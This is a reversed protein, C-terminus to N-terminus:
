QNISWNSAEVTFDERINCTILGDCYLSYLRWVGGDENRGADHLKFKPRLEMQKFLQGIGISQYDLLKVVELSHAQVLSTAKCFDHSKIRMTVERDWSALVTSEKVPYQTRIFAPPVVNTSRARDFRDVNVYVTEDYYVSFLQQLNGERTLMVRQLPTIDPVKSLANRHNATASTELRAEKSQSANEICRQSLSPLASSLTFFALSERASFLIYATHLGILYMRTTQPLLSLFQFSSKTKNAFLNIPSFHSALFFPM